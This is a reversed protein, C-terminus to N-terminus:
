TEDRFNPEGIGDLHLASGSLDPLRGEVTDLGLMQIEGNTVCVVETDSVGHAQLGCGREDPFRKKTRHQSPITHRERREL